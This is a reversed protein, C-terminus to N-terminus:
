GFVCVLFVYIWIRKARKENEKIFWVFFQDWQFHEQMIQYKFFFDLRSDFSLSKGVNLNTFIYLVKKTYICFYVLSGFRITFDM